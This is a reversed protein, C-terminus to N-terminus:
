GRCRPRGSGRRSHGLPQAPGQELVHDVVLDALRLGRRHQVVEDGRGDVHGSMRISCMSVGAGVVDSPVLPTPSAPVAPAGAAMWQATFSASARPPAAPTQRCGIRGASTSPARPPRCGSPHVDPRGSRPPRDVTARRVLSTAFVQERGPGIDAPHEIREALMRAAARAMDGIPQRLTSLQFVEWAAMPIDDFGLISVDQPVRVGLSLAADLAGFAVVDNGCVIATPPDPLRLLERTHQYGSQHSYAGERILAPDQTIGHRRSRRRPPRGHPGPEDVHEVTRPHDRDPPPGAGAPSPWRDVAGGFNDSIVRDVDLGDIYRNLLVMPLGRQQLEAAFRSELTATTVLVGDISRDLLRRLSEQGTPIDTRETFLVVRYGMIQLEDYIPTLLSPFFPNTLDSVIVAITRTSRSVLSSALSNPVYGLRRAAEDVRRRTEERVRPDGRLARSVTSQSVGPPGPSPGAPPHTARLGARVRCGHPAVGVPRAPPRAAPELPSSEATM